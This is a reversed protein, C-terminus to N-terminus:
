AVHEGLLKAREARLEGLEATKARELWEPHQELEWPSVGLYRANEILFYWSPPSGVRGDYRCWLEIQRAEDEM